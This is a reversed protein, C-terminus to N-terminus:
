VAPMTFCYPGSIRDPSPSSALRYSRGSFGCAEGPHGSAHVSYPSFEAGMGGPDPYATDGPVLGPHDHQWTELKKHANEIMVVAADVMAGIAIAIAIGGLSMINANIGQHRMVIFTVLIGLPLAIIAVLASRLHWLFPVCVLAVVVFEELLKHTLNSVTREILASRDYTTVVEVGAPLSSQLASLKAKVATITEQANKGSRLVVIGGVVEGEGNLEAIGRRMEPGLQVHAMDRLRTPIGASVGLPIAKFDALTQLYGSARVMYEAEALELVAGGTEQNARRIDPVMPDYWYLVKREPTMAPQPPSSKTAQSRALWYGGGASVVAIVTILVLMMLHSRKM